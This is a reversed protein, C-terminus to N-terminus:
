YSTHRAAAIAVELEAERGAVEGDLKARLAAGLAAGIAPGREVGAALLDHGSIELRVHRGHELYRDLWAAGLARALLLDAAGHGHAAEVEESPRGPAAGALRAASATAGRAAALVAAERADLEAWPPASATQSVAEVLTLAPGPVEILGWRDLLRFGPAPDHEHALRRLEAEVRERSVTSLDAARLLRETEEELSLGLRSAYRAARLARTPDDAFSRAHLVRLLREELDSLGGHPDILEPPGRLPIAIANITFDRRDLDQELTAASVVPLSGPSPYAETRAAAVDIPGDPTAATATLFAPHARVDGGLQRAFALHDGEVAVDLDARALGLLADRVSGGVLYADIGSRRTADRLRTVGPLAELRQALQGLDIEQPPRPMVESAAHPENGVM